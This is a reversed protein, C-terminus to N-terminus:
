PFDVRALRSAAWVIDGSTLACPYVLFFVLNNAGTRDSMVTNVFYGIAGEVPRIKLRSPQQVASHQSARVGM